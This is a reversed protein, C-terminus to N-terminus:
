VEGGEVEDWYRELETGKLGWAWRNRARGYSRCRSARVTKRTVGEQGALRPRQEARCVRGEGQVGKGKEKEAPTM